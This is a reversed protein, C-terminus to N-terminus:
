PANMEEKASGLAPADRRSAGRGDDRDLVRPWGERRDEAVDKAKKKPVVKKRAAQGVGGDGQFDDDEAYQINAYHPRASTALM